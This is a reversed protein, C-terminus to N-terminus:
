YAIHQTRGRTINCHWYYQFHITEASKPKNFTCKRQIKQGDGDMPKARTSNDLDCQSILQNSFQPRRCMRTASLIQTLFFNLKKPNIKTPRRGIYRKMGTCQWQNVYLICPVHLSTAIPLVIRLVSLVNEACKTCSRSDDLLTTLM